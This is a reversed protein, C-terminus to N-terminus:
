LFFEKASIGHAGPPLAKKIEFAVDDFAKPRHLLDLVVPTTYRQRNVGLILMVKPKLRRIRNQAIVVGVDGTNLEVLTGVPYIGICQCFQEVLNQEFLRGKWNQLLQLAEQSSLANGYPRNTTLAEFCDVIAAIGGFMSIEDEKFGRPYGSGDYREHHMSVIDMVDLSISDAKQLIDLSHQVHSKVQELEQATLKGKRELLEKPLKIKGVDQLLGGVGLTHLQEKPYGLHRGFVIMYVSVDLAHDYTYTDSSKLKTLWMLASPNRIVSEVMGEVSHNVTEIQPARGNRIDNMISEVLARTERHIKKATALEEEVPVKEEGSSSLSDEQEVTFGQSITARIAQQTISAVPRVPERRDPKFGPTAPFLGAVSKSPDVFVHKCCRTLQEIDDDSDILFGQLLFPTGLWPRDLEYVFMGPKLDTVLLKVNM